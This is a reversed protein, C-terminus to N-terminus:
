LIINDKEYSDGEKIFKKFILNNYNYKVMSDSIRDYYTDQGASVEDYQVYGREGVDPIRSMWNPFVTIMCYTYGFPTPTDLNKFVLVHYNMLDQEKALVQCHITRTIM